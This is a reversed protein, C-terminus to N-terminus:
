PVLNWLQVADRLSLGSGDAQDRHPQGIAEQVVSLPLLAEWGLLRIGMVGEDARRVQLGRVATDSWDLEM